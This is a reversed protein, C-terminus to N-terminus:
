NLDSTVDRWTPQPYLAKCLQFSHSHRHKWERQLHAHTFCAHTHPVADVHHKFLYLPQIFFPQNIM